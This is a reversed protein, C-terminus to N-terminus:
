LKTVLARLEKRVLRDILSFNSAMLTREKQQTHGKVWIMEPKLKDFLKFFEKYLDANRLVSKSKKGIYNSAELNDRRNILNIISNCDTFLKIGINRNSYEKDVTNLAAIVSRIEVRVNNEEEVKLTKIFANEFNSSIHDKENKFIIFGLVGLKKKNNFSADSYVYIKEQNM